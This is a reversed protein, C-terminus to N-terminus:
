NRAFLREIELVYRSESTFAQAPLTLAEGLPVMVSDRQSMTM